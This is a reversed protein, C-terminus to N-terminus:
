CLSLINEKLKKVVSPDGTEEELQAYFATLTRKSAKNPKLIDDM